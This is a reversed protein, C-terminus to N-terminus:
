FLVESIMLISIYKFIALSRSCLVGSGSMPLSDSYGVEVIFPLHDSPNDSTPLIGNYVEAVPKPDAAHVDARDVLYFPLDPTATNQVLGGSMLVYDIRDCQYDGIKWPQSSGLGRMKDVSAAIQSTHPYEGIDGM